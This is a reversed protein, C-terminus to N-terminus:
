PTKPISVVIRSGGGTTLIGTEVHLSMELSAAIAQAAVLAVHMHRTMPLADFDIRTGPGGGMGPRLPLVPGADEVSVLIRADTEAFADKVTSGPPSASVAYGVLQHFLATLTAASPHHGVRWEGEALLRAFGGTLAPRKREFSWEPFQDVIVVVVLRPKADPTPDITRPGSATSAGTSSAPAPCGGLLAALISALALNRVAAGYRTGTAPADRRLAMRAATVAVGPDTM